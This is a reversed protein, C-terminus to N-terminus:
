CATVIVTAVPFLLWLGPLPFLFFIKFIKGTSQEVKKGQVKFKQRWQSKNFFYIFIMWQGIWIIRKQEKRIIRTEQRWLKDDGWRLERERSGCRTDRGGRQETLAVASSKMLCIDPMQWLGPWDQCSQNKAWRRREYHGVTLQKVAREINQPQLM